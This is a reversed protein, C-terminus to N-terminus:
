LRAIFSISTACADSSTDAENVILYSMLNGIDIYVYIYEQNSTHQAHLPQLPCLNNLLRL